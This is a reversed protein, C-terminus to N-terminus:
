DQCGHGPNRLSANLEHADLREWQELLDRRADESQVPIAGVFQLGKHGLALLELHGERAAGAIGGHNVEQEDSLEILTQVSEGSASLAIVLYLGIPSVNPNADM